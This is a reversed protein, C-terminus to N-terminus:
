AGGNNLTSSISYIIGQVEVNFWFTSTPTTAGTTFRVAFKGDNTTVAHNISGSNAIPVVNSGSVVLYTATGPALAASGTETASTWWHILQARPVVTNDINRFQATIARQTAAAGSVALSCSVFGMGLNNVINGTVTLSGTIITDGNVDFPANLTPNNSGTKRIGVYLAGSGINFDTISIANEFPDNNEGFRIHFYGPPDYSDMNIVSINTGTDSQSAYLNLRPSGATSSSGILNLNGNKGNGGLYYNNYISSQVTSSSAYSSGISIESGTAFFKVNGDGDSLVVSNNINTSGTYGGVLTNKAGTTISGGANAGILTNGGGTTVVDGAFAGVATNGIGSILTQLAEYGIAVNSGGTNNQLNTGNGRLADKGIAVNNSSSMYFMATYGIAVNYDKNNIQNFLTGTGIGINRIGNLNSPLASVGIAINDTGTTNNTLSGSGFVTNSVLNGGGRSATIGSIYLANGDFQLNAEGNFPTTSNGTATVVYNNTNNTIATAAATGSIGSIGSTGSLGSLGSRGSIGSTGSLGSTGSIGQEGMPGFGVNTFGENSTSYTSNFALPNGIARAITRLLSGNQYYRINYGDYTIYFIDSLTYPTSSGIITGLEYIRVDGNTDFRFSYDLTDPDASLSSTTFGFAVDIQDATTKATVYVGRSYSQTSGAYADYSSGGGGTNIFTSSNVGYSTNSFVPTFIPIGIFGSLGSTGELGSVGELGSLGSDGSTGSLGSQGSTGSLGSQGSTGSLGSQGSTGSLGSQGSTGSLGSQGSTGSLGSLGSIGSLGSDGSTGSLGSQGSTGSLGSQGSTGSLGSQGSTGSLGSQGSTGSLGSQGSTGSLGSDGSTGSFGSQGSTGSLGSQGSTGSLGSQGSTGSIGSTGSLGSLGSTGSLGSDGNLGSQGSTM